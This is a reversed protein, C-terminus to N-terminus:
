EEQAARQALRDMQQSLEQAAATEPYDRVVERALELAQSYRQRGIM